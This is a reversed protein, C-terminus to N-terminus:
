EPDGVLAQFEPRERVVALDGDNRMHDLDDWGAEIARKLAVLTQQIWAERQTLQTEDLTGGAPAQLSAACRGFVCAANYLQSASVGELELLKTAARAAEDFQARKTLELGRLLFLTARREAPQALLQAWDGLAEQSMSLTDAMDQLEVLQGELDEVSLGRALMTQFVEAGARYEGAALLLDGHAEHARGVQVHTLGWMHQRGADRPEAAALERNIMLAQTFLPLAEAPQGLELRTEGMVWYADSLIEKPQLETPPAAAALKDLIALAQDYYAFAEDVRENALALRGLNRLSISWDQQIQANTPHEDALRQLIDHMAQFSVQAQSLAGTELEINGIHYHMVAVDRQAEVNAPDAAALPLRVELARQFYPLAEAVNGAVAQVDGMKELAVSWGRQAQGDAPDAAARAEDIALAQQYFEHATEFDDLALSVDGLKECIVSLERQAGLDTPDAALFLEIRRKVERYFQLALEPEGLQFHLEGLKAECLSLARQQTLDTPQADALRNDITRVQEFYDLAERLRGEQWSLDGMHELAVTLQRESAPDGPNGALLRRDIELAQRFCDGASELQGARMRVTGLKELSVSWDRQKQINEPEGKALRERIQHAQGYLEAATATNGTRLAVDGLRHCTVSLDRQFMANTPDAAVLSQAIEQAKSFFLQALSIATAPGSPPQASLDSLGESEASAGVGFQLVVDGMEILAVYTNHDLSAQGVYKGAVDQLKELATQLLRRRVEGGGPLKALGGQIDNVVRALTAMALQSQQRAALANAEALAQATLADGKAKTERALSGALQQNKGAVVTSVVIASMLGVLLTAALSAVSKPHRRIWRRTRLILPEPFATVPEDALFREVDDALDQPSAYRDGGDLAMAKLCIGSLARPLGPQVQHPAPFHGSKVAELTQSLNAQGAVPTRGTVVYYLTAGLSYVDSAPGLKDLQGAAQEPPMFAPTGLASGFVTEAGSSASAPQLRTEGASDDAAEGTATKALGWDVVLTEGYKGLM